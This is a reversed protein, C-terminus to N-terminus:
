IIKSSIIKEYVPYLAFEKCPHKRCQIDFCPRCWLERYSISKITNGIISTEIVTDQNLYEKKWESGTYPRWSKHDGCTFFLLCNTPVHLFHSNGSDFGLYLICRSDASLSLLEFLSFDEEVLLLSTNTLYPKIRNIQPQGPADIVVTPISFRNLLEVVSSINVLRSDAGGIHFVQFKSHPIYKKIKVTRDIFVDLDHISPDFVFDPKIVRIMKIMMACYGYNHFNRVAIDHRIGYVGFVFGVSFTYNIGTQLQAQPSGVFNLYVDFVTANSKQLQSRGFLWRYKQVFWNRWSTTQFYSPISHLVITKIGARTFVENNYESSIVTINFNKKLSLLLPITIAADGLRDSRNIIISATSGIKRRVVGQFLNLLNGIGIMIFVYMKILYFTLPKM